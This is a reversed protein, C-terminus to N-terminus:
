QLQAADEERNDSGNSKLEQTRQSPRKSKVRHSLVLFASHGYKPGSTHTHTHSLSLSLSLSRLVVRCM